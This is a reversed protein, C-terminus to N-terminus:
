AFDGKEAYQAIVKRIIPADAFTLTATHTLTQLFRSIENRNCSYVSELVWVAEILVETLVLVQISHIECFLLVDQVAKAQAAEDEILMRILANTDIAIM